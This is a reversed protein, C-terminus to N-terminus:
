YCAWGTITNRCNLKPQPPSMLKLGQQMLMLSQNLRQQRILKDAETLQGGSSEEKQKLNSEIEFIKLVCNGNEQSGIPFGLKECLQQKAEFPDLNIKSSTLECLYEHKAWAKKRDPEKDNFTILKFNQNSPFINVERYKFEPFGFTSGREYWTGILKDSLNYILDIKEHNFYEINGEKKFKELGQTFIANDEFDIIWNIHINNCQKWYDSLKSFLKEKYEFKSCKCSLRVEDTDGFIGEASAFMPTLFFVLGILLFLKKMEIVKGSVMLFTSVFLTM